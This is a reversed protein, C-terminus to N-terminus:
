ALMDYTSYLLATFKIPQQKPNRISIFINGSANGGPKSILSLVKPDTTSGYTLQLNSPLSILQTGAPCTAAAQLGYGSGGDAGDWSKVVVGNVTGGGRQVWDVLAGAPGIASAVTSSYRRFIRRSRYLPLAMRGHLSKVSLNM